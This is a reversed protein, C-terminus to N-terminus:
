TQSEKLGLMRAIRIRQMQTTGSYITGGVADRLDKELGTEALYGRGGFIQVAALASRVNAESTVVKAIAVDTTVDRGRVVGEAADYLWRRSNEVGIKMEVIQDAIMQFSGIPRGFQRRQTAHAVCRDLRHRMAGAQVIFSCLIEWRMVHDLVAFGLGPRGLVNAAPIRCNRLSLEGLPSSRLGLKPLDPGALLGETGREVLFATLGFPGLSADTLAYVVILDAVPGNTVFVKDGDLIWHDDGDPKATMGMGLVDSGGRPDTIAHATITSGDCIGPLYRAKLEPGGFRQLPIGASVLQTCISFCLGGDRCGEGLGELVYMTSLLDLGRGGWETHFPLRLLGSARVQEWKRIPSGGDSDTDSGPDNDADLHGESLVEYWPAFEARLEHHAQSWEYM